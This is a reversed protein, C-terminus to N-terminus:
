RNRGLWYSAALATLLAACIGFLRWQRLRAYGWALVALGLVPTGILALVGTEVLRRGLGSSATLCLGAGILAGSVAVGARLAGGATRASLAKLPDDM